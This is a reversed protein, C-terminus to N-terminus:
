MGEGGSGDGCVYKVRELDGRENEKQADSSGKGKSMEKADQLVCNKAKTDWMTKKRRRRSKREENLRNM